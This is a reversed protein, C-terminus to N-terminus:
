STWEMVEEWDKRLLRRKSSAQESRRINFRFWEGSGKDGLM